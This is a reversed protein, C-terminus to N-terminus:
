GQKRQGLGPDGTFVGKLSQSYDTALYENASRMEAKDGFFYTSNGQGNAIARLQELRRLEVLTALALKRDESTANDANSALSRAIHDVQQALASAEMLSQQQSHPTMLIYRRVPPHM